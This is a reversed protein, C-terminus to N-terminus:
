ALIYPEPNLSDFQINPLFDWRVRKEEPPIDEPNIGFVTLYFDFMPLRDFDPHLILTGFDIYADYQQLNKVLHPVRYLSRFEYQATITLLREPELQFLDVEIYTNPLLRRLQKLWIEYARMGILHDGNATSMANLLAINLTAKKEFQQASKELNQFGLSVPLAIKDPHLVHLGIGQKGAFQLQNVLNSPTTFLIYDPDV